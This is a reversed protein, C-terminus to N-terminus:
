AVSQTKAVPSYRDDPKMRGYEMKCYDSPLCGVLEAWERVGFGRALRAVRWREGIRRWELRDAEVSGNGDCFRCHGLADQLERVESENLDMAKAHVLVLGSKGSGNCEPCTVVRQSFLEAALTRVDMAPLM